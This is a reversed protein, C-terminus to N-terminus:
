SPGIGVMRLVKMSKWRCKYWTYDPSLVAFILKNGKRVSLRSLCRVGAIPFWSHRPDSLVQEPLYLRTNEKDQNGMPNM